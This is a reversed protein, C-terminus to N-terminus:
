GGGSPPRGPPASGALGSRVRARYQAPSCGVRARFWRSFYFADGVGVAAAVEHVPLPSAILLRQAQQCRRQALYALPALGMAEYFLASFRSPSLRARRALGLRTLRQALNAEIHELVPALRTAHSMLVRARPLLPARAFLAEM